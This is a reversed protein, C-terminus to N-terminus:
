RAGEENMQKATTTALVWDIPGTVQEGASTFVAYRRWAVEAVHYPYYINGYQEHPQITAWYPDHTATPM